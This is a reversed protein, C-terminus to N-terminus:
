KKKETVEELFKKIKDRLDGRLSESLDAITELKDPLMKKLLAILVNNDAFAREVAHTLLTKDNEKEVKELAQRFLEIEPKRPAGHINGSVGPKWNPNGRQGM